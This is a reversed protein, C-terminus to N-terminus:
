STARTPRPASAGRSRYVGDLPLRYACRPCVGPEPFKGALLHEITINVMRALRFAISATVTRMGNAAHILTSEEFHLLRGITKWTGFKARLFYLANRVHDQEEKTLDLETIPRAGM